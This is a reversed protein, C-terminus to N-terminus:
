VWREEPRRFIENFVIAQRISEPDTLLDTLSTAFTAPIALYAAEAAEPTEITMPAASEGPMASLESVQHDFVQHLHQDIQRDAQAVEGGLQIERREFNESDLYKKVHEEVKGGVRRDVIVEAKVPQEVKEARRSAQQVRVPPAQQARVPPQQKVERKQAAKKLFDEIENVVDAPVPRKPPPQAPGGGPPQISKIKAVVQAIVSIIVVLVTIVVPILEEAGAFLPVFRSM